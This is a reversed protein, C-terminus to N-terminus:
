WPGPRHAALRRRAESYTDADIEGSAFRRDLIEEPTEGPAKRPASTGHRGASHQTLRVVVWAVLGILAIWLLPMLTMWAWGGNWYM